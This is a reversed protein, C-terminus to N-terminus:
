HAWLLAIEIILKDFYALFGCNIELKSLSVFCSLRNVNQPM